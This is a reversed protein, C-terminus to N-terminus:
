RGRIGPLVISSLARSPAGNSLTAPPWLYPCCTSGTVPGSVRLQGKPQMLTGCPSPKRASTLVVEYPADGSDSIIIFRPNEGPSGESIAEDAARDGGAKAVFGAIRLSCRTADCSMEAIANCAAKAKALNFAVQLERGQPLADADYILLKGKIKTGFSDRFFIRL